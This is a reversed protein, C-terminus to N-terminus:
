FASTVPQKCYNKLVPPLPMRDITALLEDDTIINRTKTLHRLIRQKSLASLSPPTPKFCLVEYHRFIYEKKDPFPVYLCKHSCHIKGLLKVDSSSASQSPIQDFWTSRSISTGRWTRGSGVSGVTRGIYYAENYSCDIGGIVSSRPVNGNSCEVWHLVDDNSVLVEYDTSTRVSTGYSCELYPQGPSIFGPILEDRNAQLRTRGIYITQGTISKGGSVANEPIEGESCSVWSIKDAPRRNNSRKM